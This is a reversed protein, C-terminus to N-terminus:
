SSKKSQSSKVRFKVIRSILDFPIDANLAFKITGKGSIYPSLEDKFEDIGSPAPYFGIHTKYAGFHVLNGNLKYTPLGYSIAETAQPAANKIVERIKKLTLQVDKPYMKIYEDISSVKKMQM